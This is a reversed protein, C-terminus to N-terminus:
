SFQMAISAIHVVVVIVRFNTHCISYLISITIQIQVASIAIHRRMRIYSICTAVLRLRTSYAMVKSFKISLSVAVQTLYQTPTLLNLIVTKIEGNSCILITLQNIVIDTYKNVILDIYCLLNTLQMREYRYLIGKICYVIM